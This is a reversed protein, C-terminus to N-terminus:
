AQIIDKDVTVVEFSIAYDFPDLIALFSERYKGTTSGHQKHSPMQWFADRSSCVRDLVLSYYLVFLDHRLHYFVRVAGNCFDILASGYSLYEPMDHYQNM